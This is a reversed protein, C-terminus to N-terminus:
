NQVWRWQLRIYRALIRLPAHRRARPRPRAADRQVWVGGGRVGRVSDPGQPEPNLTLPGAADRQVWVGGGRVGRVSDAGQLLPFFLLQHSIISEGFVRGCGVGVYVSLVM